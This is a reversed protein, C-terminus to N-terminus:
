RRPGRGRAPRSHAADPRNICAHPQPGAPKPARGRIPGLPLAQCVNNNINSTTDYSATPSQPCSSEFRTPRLRRPSCCRRPSKTNGWGCPMPGVEHSPRVHAERMVRSNLAAYGLPGNRPPGNTAPRERSPGSTVPGNGAHGPGNGRPGNMSSGYGRPEKVDRSRVPVPVPAPQANAGTGDDNGNANQDKGRYVINAYDVSKGVKTAGGGGGGGGGGGVGGGGRGLKEPRTPLYGEGARREAVAWVMAPKAGVCDTSANWAM